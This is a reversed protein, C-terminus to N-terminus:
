FDKKCLLYLQESRGEGLHNFPNIDSGEFEEGESPPSPTGKRALNSLQTTTTQLQQEMVGFRADLAGQLNDLQVGWGKGRGKRIM